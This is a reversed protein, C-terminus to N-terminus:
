ELKFDRKIQQLIDDLVYTNFMRGFLKVVMNPRTALTIQFNRLFLEKQMLKYMALAIYPYIDCSEQIIPQKALKIWLESTLNFNKIENLQEVIATYEKMDNHPADLAKDLLEVAKKDNQFEHYYAALQTLLSCQSSGLMGLSLALEEAMNDNGLM